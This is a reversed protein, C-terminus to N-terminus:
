ARKVALLDSGAGTFWLSAAGKVASPMTGADKRKRPVCIYIYIYFYGSGRRHGKMGRRQRVTEGEGTWHRRGWSGDGGKAISPGESDENGKCDLGRWQKTSQLMTDWDGARALQGLMKM